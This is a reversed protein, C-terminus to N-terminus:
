STGRSGFGRRADRSRPSQQKVLGLKQGCGGRDVVGQLGPQNHDAREHTRLAQEASPVAAGRRGPQLAPIGNRRPHDRRAAVHQERYARGQGAGEGARSRQGSRGHLLVASAQRAPRGGGRRHRYGSPEQGHRARWRPRRQACSGHVEDRGVAGRAQSRGALGRLRLGRPRPPGPVERREDPPQGLAHRPRDSRRAADARRALALRGPRRQEARHPRGV